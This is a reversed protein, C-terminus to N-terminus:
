RFRWILGVNIVDIDTKGARDGGVNDYRQWELRVGAQPMFDYQTGFGYTLGGNTDDGDGATSSRFESRGYYAGLKGYISFNNAVPYAGLGVLEFVHTRRTGAAQDVEGLHHFGIEAAFNRNIQYGGLIRWATDSEDPVKVDARGISAGVYMSGTNVQAVAPLAFASAAVAVAIAASKM